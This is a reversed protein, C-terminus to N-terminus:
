KDEAIELGPPVQFPPKPPNAAADNLDRLADWIKVLAERSFSVVRPSKTSQEVGDLVFVQAGVRPHLPPIDAYKNM